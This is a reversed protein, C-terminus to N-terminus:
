PAFAKDPDHQDPNTEPRNTPRHLCGNVDVLVLMVPTTVDMKVRMVFPMLMIRLSCMLVGMDGHPDSDQVPQGATRM